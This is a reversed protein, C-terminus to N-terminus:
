EVEMLFDWLARSINFIVQFREKDRVTYIPDNIPKNLLWEHNKIIGSLYRKVAKLNAGNNLMNYCCVSIFDFGNRYASERAFCKFEERTKM